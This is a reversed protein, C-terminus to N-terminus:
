FLVGQASPISGAEWEGQANVILIKGADASTVAPLETAPNEADWEGSSNVTLVKGEDTSTVEPLTGSPAAAAVWIGSSNVTLVKTEDASTVTPLLKALIAAFASEIWNAPAAEGKLIKALREFTTIM